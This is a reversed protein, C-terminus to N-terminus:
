EVKPTEGGAALLRLAPQSPLDTEDLSDIMSCVPQFCLKGDRLQRIMRWGRRRWSLPCPTSLGSRSFPLHLKTGCPDLDAGRPQRWLDRWGM